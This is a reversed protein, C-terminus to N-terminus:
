HRSSQIPIKTCVRHGSLLVFSLFVERFKLWNYTWFNRLVDSISFPVALGSLNCFSQAWWHLMSEGWSKVSSRSSKLYEEILENQIRLFMWIYDLLIRFAYHYCFFWFCANFIFIKAKLLAKSKFAENVLEYM